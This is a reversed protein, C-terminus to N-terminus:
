NHTLRNSSRRARSNERHRAACTACSRYGKAYTVNAADLLHGYSCHTRSTNRHTGHRVQDCINESRTGWKLNEARNDLKNGNIHCADLDPAYGPVFVMAVLRHLRRQVRRGDETIGVKQYGNSTLTPSLPGRPGRARGQNSVKYKGNTRPVVGWLEDM